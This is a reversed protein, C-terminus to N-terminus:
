CDMPRLSSCMQCQNFLSDSTESNSIVSPRVQDAESPKYLQLYFVHMGDFRSICAAFSEGQARQFTKLRQLITAKELTTTCHFALTEIVAGLNQKKTDLTELILPKYQRLYITLMMLLTQDTAGIQDAFSIINYLSLPLNTLQSEPEYSIHRFIENNPPAKVNQILMYCDLHPIWGMFSNNSPCILNKQNSQNSLVRIPIYNREILALEHLILNEAVKLRNM